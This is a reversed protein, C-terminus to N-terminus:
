FSSLKPEAQRCAVETAVESSSLGSPYDEPTVIHAVYLKSGFRRAVGTAYPLAQMSPASFDTAFLISKLSFTRNMQPGEHVDSTHLVQM